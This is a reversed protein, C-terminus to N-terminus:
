SDIKRVDIWYNFQVEPSKHFKSIEGKESIQVRNLVQWASCSKEQLYLIQHTHLPIGKHIKSQMERLDIVNMHKNAM